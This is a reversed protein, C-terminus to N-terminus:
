GGFVFIGALILKQVLEAPVVRSAVAVLLDSPVARAVSTGLGLLERGLPVRPVFVM